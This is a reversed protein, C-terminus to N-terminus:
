SPQQDCMFNLPCSNALYVDALLWCALQASLQVITPADNSLAGVPKKATDASKVEDSSPVPSHVVSLPDVM